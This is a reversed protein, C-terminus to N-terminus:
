IREKYKFSLYMDEDTADVTEKTYETYTGSIDAGGLYKKIYRWISISVADCFFAGTTSLHRTIAAGEDNNFKIYVIKNKKDFVIDAKKYKSLGLEKTAALNFRLVNKTSVVLKRAKAYKRTGRKNDEFKSVLDSPMEKNKEFLTTINM